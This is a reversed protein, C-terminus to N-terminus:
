HNYPLSSPLLPCAHPSYQPLTLRPVPPYLDPASCIVVTLSACHPPARTSLSSPLRVSNRLPWACSSLPLVLRGDTQALTKCLERERLSVLNSHPLPPSLSFPARMVLLVPDSPTHWFLPRSALVAARVPVYTCIRARRAPRHLVRHALTAAAAGSLVSHHRAPWTPHVEATAGDPYPPCFMRPAFPRAVRLGPLFSGFSSTRWSDASAARYYRLRRTTARWTTRQSAYRSPAEFRRPRRRSRRAPDPCAVTPHPGACARASAPRRLWPHHISCVQTSVRFLVESPLLTRLLISIGFKPARETSPRRSARFSV